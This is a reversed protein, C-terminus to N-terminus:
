CTTNRASSVGCTPWPEEMRRRNDPRSFDAYPENAFAPLSRVTELVSVTM